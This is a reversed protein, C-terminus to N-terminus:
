KRYRASEFGKVDIPCGTAWPPVEDMVNCFDEISGGGFMKNRGVIEDHVHLVVPYGADRMRILAECLLDRAVAQTINEVILGGYLRKATLGAGAQVLGLFEIQEILEPEQAMLGTQTIGTVTSLRRITVGNPVRVGYLVGDRINDEDFDVGLDELGALVTDKGGFDITGQMGTTWPAVVKVVKPRLYHLSRGSPLKIEMAPGGGVDCMGVTLDGLDQPSGTKVAEICSQNAERWYSRINPHGERYSKIVKKAERSTIIVGAMVRCADKFAKWGMGYGCGLVATKGVFRQADTVEEVPVGYTKSARGKYLDGGSGLIDLVEQEGALWALVRVEISAYDAIFLPEDGESIMSRLLNSIVHMPPGYMTLHRPHRGKMMEFVKDMTDVDLNGRVFNQPQMGRGSFRGTAAAGYYQTAGRVRGDEDATAAMAELKSLSALGVDRRLEVVRRVIAPIDPQELYAEVTEKRLNPLSGGKSAVFDLISKVENLTKVKGGTLIQVDMNSMRKEEDVILRANNVDEMSLPIGRQNIEENALWVKREFTNMPPLAHHIAWEALVDQRCYKYLIELDEKSENWFVQRGFLSGEGTIAQPVALSMMVKNGHSDKLVDLKLAKGAGSLSRPFGYSAALAATCHWQALSVQPWGMRKVCLNNWISIEFAANHAHIEGGAKIHEVVEADLDQGPLWLGTTAGDFSWAMCLVDTTKDNSYPSQGRKPLDCESRTEFDIFLLRM